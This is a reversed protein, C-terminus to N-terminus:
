PRGLFLYLTKHGGQGWGLGVYAPGLATSAGLFLGLGARDIRASQVGLPSRMRAYELSAGAYLGSGFPQPLGVLRQYYTLSGLGLGKVLFQGTQFGSLNQFGGVSIVDLVNNGSASVSAVHVRAKLTHAGWSRAAIGELDARKYIAADDHTDDKAWFSELRAASGSRPFDLEDLQDYVARLRLGNLRSEIPPVGSLGIQPSTKVKAKVLGVHLEGLADQLGAGLELEARSISFEGVSRNGIFVQKPQKSLSWRPELYWSSGSWLPQIWRTEFQQSQGFSGMVQWEGGSANLWTRRLAAKVAFDANSRSDASGAFGVQLYDPGWPKEQPDVWLTYGEGDPRVSYAINTFNGSGSWQLIRRELREAVAEELVRARSGAAFVFFDRPVFRTPAVQVSHVTPPALRKAKRQAQWQAYQDPPLALAALQAQAALTAREGAPIGDIGREFDVASVAGLDPVVLVDQSRMAALSDTVNREMLISVMQLAVSFVGGLEEAKLLPSGINVAIVRDACMQQVTQVPLNQTLGGDVLLREGVKVPAFAGPVAMSARVAHVLSGQGQVVSQGTVLDTALARFPIPMRDFSQLDEHVGLMRHLFLEVKQGAFIGVSSQIGNPGWGLTVGIPAGGLREKTRYPLDPRAPQDNFIDGGWGGSALAREIEDPSMGLAYAAGVASGASTGAICDVPIRLAELARLVGVHSFGRAGGGSLALGIRPRAEAPAAQVATAEAAHAPVPLAAAVVVSLALPRFLRLLM